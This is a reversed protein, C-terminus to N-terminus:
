EAAAAELEESEVKKKPADFRRFSWAHQVFYAFIGEPFVVGGSLGYAKPKEGKPLYVTGFMWDWIALKTGYNIGGETLHSSHHWRHAEPGNIVRQLWGSKVDINSHIYMGWTADIVGKILWLDARAGLLMFPAYEITQNIIIELAHSRSGALWDVNRVSHHAEHVRWLYKNNHQLRHFWYIYFDHVVFLVGLQLWLPWGSILHLRSLGTGADLVDVTLWKIVLGLFYSQVLTYWFFDTFFGERFLKQGKDYPFFRELAIMFLAWSVIIVPSLIEWPPM